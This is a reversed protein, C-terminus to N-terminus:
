AAFIAKPMARCHCDDVAAVVRDFTDAILEASGRTGEEVPSM